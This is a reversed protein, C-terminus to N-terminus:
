NREILLVGIGCGEQNESEIFEWHIYDDKIENWLRDVEAHPHPMIDHFVVLSNKHPNTMRGYKDWDKKVGDYSHDADIFIFDFPGGFSVHRIIEESQSNGKITIVSQSSEKWDNYFKENLHYDDVAVVTSYIDSHKIWQYLTGGYHTGVELINKPNLIKFLKLLEKFEKDYQSIPVPSDMYYKIEEASYM